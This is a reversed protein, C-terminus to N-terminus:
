SSLTRDRSSSYGVIGVVTIASRTPQCPEELQNLCFMCLIRGSYAGSSGPSRSRWEGPSWICHSRQNGGTLTGTGFVSVAGGGTGTITAEQEWKVRASIIGVRRGIVIAPM